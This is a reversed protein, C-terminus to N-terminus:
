PPNFVFITFRLGESIPFKFPFRTEFASAGAGRPQASGDLKAFETDRIGDKFFVSLDTAGPVLVAIRTARYICGIM